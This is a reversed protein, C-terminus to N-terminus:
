TLFTSLVIDANPWLIPRTGRPLIMFFGKPGLESEAVIEAVIERYVGDRGLIPFNRFLGPVLNKKWPRITLLGDTFSMLLVEAIKVRGEINDAHSVCYLILM